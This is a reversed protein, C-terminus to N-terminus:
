GDTNQVNQDFSLQPQLIRLFIVGLLWGALSDLEGRWLLLLEVKGLQYQGAIALVQDTHCALVLANTDELDVRLVTYM